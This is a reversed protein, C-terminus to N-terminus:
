ALLSKEFPTLLGREIYWSDPRIRRFLRSIISTM